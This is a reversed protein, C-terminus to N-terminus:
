SPASPPEAASRYFHEERYDGRPILRRSPLLIRENRRREWRVVAVGLWLEKLGWAFAAGIMLEAFGNLGLLLSALLVAVIVSVVFGQRILPKAIREISTGVPVFQADELAEPDPRQFDGKIVVLLVGILVMAISLVDLEVVIAASIAAVAILGTGLIVLDRSIRVFTAGSAASSSLM